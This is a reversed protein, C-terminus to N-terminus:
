KLIINSRENVDDLRARELNNGTTENFLALIAIVEMKQLTQLVQVTKSNFLENFAAIVDNYSVITLKEGKKNV